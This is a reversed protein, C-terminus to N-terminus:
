FKKRGSNGARFNTKLKFKRFYYRIIEESAVRGANEEELALEKISGLELARAHLRQAEKKKALNSIQKM